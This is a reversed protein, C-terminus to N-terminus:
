TETFFPRSKATCTRLHEHLTSLSDCGSAGSCRRQRRLELQSLVADSGQISLAARASSSCCAATRGMRRSRSCAVSTQIPSRAYLREYAVFRCVNSYFKQVKCLVEYEAEFQKTDWDSAGETLRKVAVMCGFIQARYVVCSAGGGLRCLESFGDTAKALEAYELRRVKQPAGAASGSASAAGSPVAAWEKMVQQKATANRPFGTGGASGFEARSIPAAPTPTAPLPAAGISSGSTCAVASTNQLGAGTNTGTASTSAAATSTSQFNFSTDLQQQQCGLEGANDGPPM